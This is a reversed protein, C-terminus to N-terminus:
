AGLAALTREQIEESVDEGSRDTVIALADMLGNRYAQCLARSEPGSARHCRMAAEICDNVLMAIRKEM